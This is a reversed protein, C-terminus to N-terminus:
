EKDGSINKKAITNHIDYVAMLAATGYWERLEM